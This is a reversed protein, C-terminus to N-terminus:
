DRSVLRGVFILTLAILSIMLAGISLYFESTPTPTAWAIYAVILNLGSLCGFLATLLNLRKTTKKEQELALLNMKGSIYTSAGEVSREVSRAFELWSSMLNLNFSPLLHKILPEALLPVLPSVHGQMNSIVPKLKLFQAQIIQTRDLLESLQTVSNGRVTSVSRMDTTIVSLDDLMKQLSPNIDQWSTLLGKQMILSDKVKQFTVIPIQSSGVARILCREPESSREYDPALIDIAMNTINEFRLFYSVYYSVFSDQKDNQGSYFIEESDIQYNEIFWTKLDELLGRLQSYVAAGARSSFGALGYILPDRLFSDYLDLPWPAHRITMVWTIHKEFIIDLTRNNWEYLIGLQTVPVKHLRFASRIVEESIRLPVVIQFGAFFQANEKWNTLMAELGHELFIGCSPCCSNSTHVRQPCSDVSSLSTAVECKMCCHLFETDDTILMLGHKRSLNEIESVMKNM